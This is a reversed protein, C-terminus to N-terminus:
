SKPRLQVDYFAFWTVQRKQLNIASVKNGDVSFYVDMESLPGGGISDTIVKGSNMLLTIRFKQGSGMMTSPRKWKVEFRSKAGNRQILHDPLFKVGIAKKTKLNFRSLSEWNGEDCGVKLNTTQSEAPYAAALEALYFSRKERKITIAGGVSPDQELGPADQDGASTIRFVLAPYKSSSLFGPPMKKVGDSVIWPSLPKGDPTWSKKGRNDSVALLTIAGGGPLPRSWKPTSAVSAAIFLSLIM